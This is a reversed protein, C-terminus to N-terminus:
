LRKLLASHQSVEKLTESVEKLHSQFMNIPGGKKNLFKSTEQLQQLKELMKQSTKKLSGSFHANKKMSQLQGEFSNIRMNLVNSAQLLLPTPKYSPPSCFVPM